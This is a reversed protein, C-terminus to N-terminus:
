APCSSFQHNSAGAAAAKQAGHALAYDIATRVATVQARICQDGDARPGDPYIETTARFMADTLGSCFGHTKSASMAIGDALAAAGVIEGHEDAPAIHTVRSVADIVARLFAPQPADADGIIYFGDPIILPVYATGDRAALAPFYESADSETAEHLDMHVLVRDAIPAVLRMLALAEEAQGKARFSRNPDIADPNWRQITEYGWPSVCPAVLINIKGQYSELHQQAFRLAGHVGSTEYGHVGGTILAIPLDSRWGPSKIAFLPYASPRYDLHGYQIVAYHDRLQEIVSLVDDEYSRLPKQLERWAKKEANGWPVGPTGIPYAKTEDNM